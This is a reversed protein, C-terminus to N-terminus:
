EIQLTLAVQSSFKQVRSASLKCIKRGNAVISLANFYCWTARFSYCLATKRLIQQQEKRKGPSLPIHSRMFNKEDFTLTLRFEANNATNNCTARHVDSTGGIRKQTRSAFFTVVRAALARADLTALDSSYYLLM